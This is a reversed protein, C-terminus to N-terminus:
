RQGDPAADTFVMKESLYGFRVSGEREVSAIAQRLSDLSTQFTVRRDLLAPNAVFIQTRYWRQLDKIVDGLRRNSAVYRNETWSTAEALEGDTPARAAGSDPVFLGQGPSLVHSSDAVRVTVAGEHLSITAGGEDPYARVTFATGTAVVTAPGAIVTLPEDMGTAVVIRAAGAVRVGRLDAGFKEPIFIQSEPALRVQSGDALELAGLQGPSTAVTRVPGSTVATRIRSQAGATDLVWVAALAFGVTAAGVLAPTVWSSERTVEKIHLAAERHAISAAREHAEASRADARVGKLVRDWSTERDYDGGPRAHGSAPASGQAQHGLRHAALQRSLARAVGHEVEKRLYGALVEGSAIQHRGHWANVFAQEAVRPAVYASDGLRDTALAVLADVHQEFVKRLEQEDQLVASQRAPAAGSALRSGSGAQTM